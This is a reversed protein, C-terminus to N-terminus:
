GLNRLRDEIAKLESELNELESSPKGSIDMSKPKNPMVGVTKEIRKNKDDKEHRKEKKVDKVRINAAPMKSKILNTLKNIDRLQESLRASIEERYHKIHKYKEYGHLVQITMKMAELINRKLETRNKIEVFFFDDKGKKLM